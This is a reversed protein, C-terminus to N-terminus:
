QTTVGIELWMHQPQPTHRRNEMGWPACTAAHPMMRAVQSLNDKRLLNEQKHPQPVIKQINELSAFNTGIGNFSQPNIEQSTRIWLGEKNKWTYPSSTSATPDKPDKPPNPCRCRASGAIARGLLGAHALWSRRVKLPPPGHIAQIREKLWFLTKPFLM